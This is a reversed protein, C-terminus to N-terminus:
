KGTRNSLQGSPFRPLAFVVWFVRTPIDVDNGVEMKLIKTGKEYPSSMLSNLGKFRVTILM